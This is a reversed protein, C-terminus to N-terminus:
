LRKAYHVQRAVEVFGFSPYLHQGAPNQALTEIRALELGERAFMELANAILERGIGRGRYDSRVALNPILGVSADRDIRTTIYGVVQGDDEAVFIVAGLVAIDDDIHRAKRWRWDHGGVTGFQREINHDIAVDDFAEVTLAKLTDRDSERFTRIHM